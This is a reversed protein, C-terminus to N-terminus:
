GENASSVGVRGPTGQSGNGSGPGDQGTPGAGTKTQETPAAEANGANSTGATGASQAQGSESGANRAVLAHIGASAALGAGLELLAWHVGRKERGRLHDISIRGPGADTLAFVAAILVANYEFGGDTVWVGNKLHVKSIATAMTGTLMAAALPTAAGMALLSGGVLESAGAASAMQRGPKLGMQEFGQGTAELGDGGFAGFLKQSGHGIFLGGVVARLTTLGLTQGRHYPTAKRRDRAKTRTRKTRKSTSM